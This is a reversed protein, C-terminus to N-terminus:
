RNGIVEEFAVGTRTAVFTLGVFNISRAPKIYIDAVFENNDIVSATNNTRDCIVVYDSIGRKAQVDRLFPEVINVFNTRTIEDNFEFLQDRAAASIADELYIFLRRVNIRDFASSKSLATKDGFLVIGGAPAVMVPNIRSSYLRDRQSRSPNYALKVANLIAGRDNGAPSYWPFNNIDSRACVGAIDGNLPVYRFTNAFRDYMYKYGSDLVGYSSSTVGSYFKIVNNTIDAPNRVEAQNLLAGRWPSIFAIADKRESAVAIAKNAVAQADQQTSYGGSGMLIFDVEYLDNNEFENYGTAVEGSTVGLSGEKELDTSGTAETSGYNTGGSLTYNTAGIGPFIKGEANTNWQDTSLTTSGDSFGTTVIGTPASGGFINVGNDKLYRVWYSPSGASFEADKAKSLNLHKELITGANGTVKGDGDIVIVHVEDFRGGRAAVYNSTAPRPAESEWSTTLDTTTGGKVATGTVFTQSGYWDAVSSVTSTSTSASTFSNITMFETGIKVISGVTLKAASDAKNLISINKAEASAIDSTKTHNNTKTVFLVPTDDAHARDAAGGEQGRVTTSEAGLDISGDDNFSADTLKVFESGILAFNNAAFFASTIGTTTIGITTSGISIGQNAITQVSNSETTALTYVTVNADNNVSPVTELTGLSNRQVGINTGLGSVTGGFVTSVDSSFRYIGEPEYDKPTVVANDGSGSVHSLFKVHINNGEKGTIIGKFKGTLTTTTGIGAVVTNDPVDQTVSDNVNLGTADPLTLIQDARADILSVRIGNGWSGPNKASFTPVSTTNDVYGSQEFHETNKIKFTAGSSNANNLNESDVRVVRLNAGYALFSSATLWHEYHNNANYPRGFTNLLANENEVLIPEGVPGKAFPAAIAGIKDSSPDIRGSTLDIEKVLIGPSALNVPM